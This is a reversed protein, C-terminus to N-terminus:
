YFEITIKVEPSVVWGPVLFITFGGQPLYDWELGRCLGEIGRMRLRFRGKLLPNFYDTSSTFMNGYVWMDEKIAEINNCCCM